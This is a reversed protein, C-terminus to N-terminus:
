QAIITGSMAFGHVSCHYPFSGATAFTRQYTGSSQFPSMITTDANDTVTHVTDGALWVWTVTTGVPVTTSSPSYFNNGIRITDTSSQGSGGGTMGHGGSGNGIGIVGTPPTSQNNTGSCTAFIACAALGAAMSAYRM